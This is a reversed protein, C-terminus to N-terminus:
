IAELIAKHATAQFEADSPIVNPAPQQNVGPSLLFLLRMGQASASHTETANRLALYSKGGLTVAFLGPFESATHGYAEESIPITLYKVRKPTIPGGYYRQRVGVKNIVIAVHNGEQTWTCGRAAAEWFGTSPWGMKNTGNSYLKRKTLEKLRPGVIPAIRQPQVRAVLAQLAPSANNTIKIM